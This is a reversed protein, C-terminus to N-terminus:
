RGLAFDARASAADSVVVVVSDAGMSEHWAVVTHRGPPLGELRYNGDASPRTFAGPELVLIVGGMDSHIDCFVRVIGAEAFRVSRSEGPAYRGLNFPKADSLSFINHFVDDSNPFDVQTGRTIVTVRPVIALDRQDVIAPRPSPRGPPATSVWIVVDEISAVQRASQPAGYRQRSYPSLRPPDSVPAATLRVSGDITGSRNAQLACASAPACVKEAAPAPARGAGAVVLLLGGLAAVTASRNLVM